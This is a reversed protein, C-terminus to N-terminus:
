SWLKSNIQKDRRLEKGKNRKEWWMLRWRWGPGTRIPRGGNNALPRFRRENVALSCWCDEILHLITSQWIIGIIHIITAEDRHSVQLNIYRFEIWCAEPYAFHTRHGQLLKSIYRRYIPCSWVPTSAIRASIQLISRAVGLPSFSKIQTPIYDNIVVSRSSLAVTIPASFSSPSILELEKGKPFPM